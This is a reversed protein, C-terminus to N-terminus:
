YTNRYMYQSTCDLQQYLKAIFHTTNAIVSELYIYQDTLLFVDLFLVIMTITDIVMYDTYACLWEGVDIM